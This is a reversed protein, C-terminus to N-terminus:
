SQKEWVVEGNLITMKVELDKIEDSPAMSPDGNLVVL